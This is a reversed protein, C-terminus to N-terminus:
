KWIGPIQAQCKPCRGEALQNKLVNFGHRSVLLTQCSPCLTNEGDDGPVNGTYVFKIGADVGIQRALKLTAVPTPPVDEMENDPHFRSLHWPMGPDVSALFAAAAKLEEPSDNYGPIILTTVEVWIGLERMLRITDQVPALKAGCTKKYFEERFGKLDVNAAALYPQIDRLPQASTYGNTVFVSRIGAAAAAKATDFAWEFYVTPETYTFSLTAAREAKAAKVVAEPALYEGPITSKRKAFQSIYHNQCHDCTLNCGVTAVSLSSSGPLVHFLPKKEIPDNHVAIAMGYVLSVLTGDRNERVACKGRAGLQIACQHPCLRCRVAGKEGKEYYRAEIPHKM